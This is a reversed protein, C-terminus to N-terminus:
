LFIIFDLWWPTIQVLTRSTVSHPAISIQGFISTRLFKRQLNTKPTTKCLSDMDPIRKAILTISPSSHATSTTLVVEVPELM